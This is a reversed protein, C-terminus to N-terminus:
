HYLCFVIDLVSFLAMYDLGVEVQLSPKRIDDILGFLLYDRIGPQQEMMCNGILDCNLTVNNKLCMNFVINLQHYFMNKLMFNVFSKLIRRLFHKGTM